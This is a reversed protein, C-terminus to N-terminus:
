AELRSLSTARVVERRPYRLSVAAVGSTAVAPRRPSAQRALHTGVGSRRHLFARGDLRLGSRKSGNNGDDDRAHRQASGELLVNSVAIGEPAGSALSLAGTPAALAAVVRQGVFVMGDRERVRGPAAASMQGKHSM